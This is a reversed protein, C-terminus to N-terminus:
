RLVFRVPITVTSASRVGAKMAPTFRWRRVADRAARDLVSHGSSHAVSVAAARGDATVEVRLLVRGEWGRARAREPYVPVRNRGLPAAGRSVPGPTGASPQLSSSQGTGSAGATGTKKGTKAGRAAPTARATQPPAPKQAPKKVPNPKPPTKAKKIPEPKAPKMKAPPRPKIEPPEPDPQRVAEGKKAAASAAVSGTAAGSRPTADPGRVVVEVAIATGIAEPVAPASPWLLAAFAAHLALSFLAALALTLRPREPLKPIRVAAANM